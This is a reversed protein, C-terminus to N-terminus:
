GAIVEHRNYIIYQQCLDAVIHFASHFLDPVLDWIELMSRQHVRFSGGGPLNKLKQLFISFSARPELSASTKLTFARKAINTKLAVHVVHKSVLLNFIDSVSVVVCCAKCVPSLKERKTFLKATILVIRYYAVTQIGSEESHDLEFINAFLACARNRDM